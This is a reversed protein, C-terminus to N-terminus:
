GELLEGRSLLTVKYLHRSGKAKARWERASELGSSKVYEELEGDDAIEKIFEVYVVGKKGLGGYCLIDKGERRKKPRLTYVLGHKLLYDRAEKVNFWIV